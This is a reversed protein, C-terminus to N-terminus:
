TAYKYRGYIEFGDRKFATEKSQTFKTPIAFM